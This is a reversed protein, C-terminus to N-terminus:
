LFLNRNIMPSSETLAQQDRQLHLVLPYLKLDLHGLVVLMPKEKELVAKLQVIATASDKFLSTRELVARM